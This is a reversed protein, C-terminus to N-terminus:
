DAGQLELWKGENCFLVLSAKGVFQDFIGAHDIQSPVLPLESEARKVYRVIDTKTATSIRRSFRREQTEVQQVYSTDDALRAEGTCTGSRKSILMISSKNNRSCLAAWDLQGPTVFEGRILNHPKPEFYSAQPIRCGRAKLETVVWAPVDKGFRDAELYDSVDVTHGTPGNAFSPTTLLVIIAISVVRQAAM